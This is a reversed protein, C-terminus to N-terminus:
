YYMYGTVIFVTQSLVYRLRPAKFLDTLSTHSVVTVANRQKVHSTPRSVTSTQPVRRSHWCHLNLQLQFFWCLVMSSLGFYKIDELSAVHKFIDDFEFSRKEDKSTLKETENEAM